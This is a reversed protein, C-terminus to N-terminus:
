RILTAVRISALGTIVNHNNYYKLNVLYLHAYVLYVYMDRDTYM